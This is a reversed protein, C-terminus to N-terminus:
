LVEFTTVFSTELMFHCEYPEPVFVVQSRKNFSWQRRTEVTICVRTEQTVTTNTHRPHTQMPPVYFGPTNWIPELTYRRQKASVGLFYQCPQIKNSKSQSHSRSLWHIKFKPLVNLKAWMKITFYMDVNIYDISITSNPRWPTLKRNFNHRYNCSALVCYDPWKTTCHHASPLYHSNFIAASSFRKLLDNHTEVCRFNVDSDFSHLVFSFSMSSLSSVVFVGWMFNSYIWGEFLM